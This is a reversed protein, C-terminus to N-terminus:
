VLTAFASSQEPNRNKAYKGIFSGDEDMGADNGDAYDAISETDSEAPMRMESSISPKRKEGGGLRDQHTYEMFGGDEYEHRGHATEQEQVAYKGGRNRKVLCVVVCVAFLFLLALLMGIFWGSSHVVVGGRDAAAPMAAAGMYVDQTLSPTGYEGDVAVVRFQYVDDQELGQVVVYNENLQQDSMYWQTETKKRYQVYFHSGPNGDVQPQWTVKKRVYENGSNL